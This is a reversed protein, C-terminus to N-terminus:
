AMYLEHPFVFNHPGYDFEAQQPNQDFEVGPRAIGPLRIYPQDTVYDTGANLLSGAGLRVLKSGVMGFPAAGIYAAGQLLSRGAQDVDDTQMAKLVGYTPLLVRGAIEATELPFRVPNRLFAERAGL